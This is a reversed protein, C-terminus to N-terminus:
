DKCFIFALGYCPGLVGVFDACGCRECGSRCGAYDTVHAVDGDKFNCWTFDVASCPEVCAFIDVVVCACLNRVHELYRRVLEESQVRLDFSIARVDHGQSGIANVATLSGLGNKFSMYGSESVSCTM